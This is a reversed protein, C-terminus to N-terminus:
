KLGAIIARSAAEGSIEVNTSLRRGTEITNTSLDDYLKKYQEKVDKRQGTANKTIELKLGDAIYQYGGLGANALQMMDNQYVRGAQKMQGLAYTIRRFADAGGGLASVANGVAVIGGEFKKTDPNKRLVEDLSFGFARMRLASEQLEAFRFPTVNAFERITSVMGEAAASATSYGMRIYDIRGSVDAALVQQQTLGEGAAFLQQAQNRFLTTFGVTSQELLSNFGIIGGKLHGFIQGIESAIGQLVQYGAAMGLVNKIQGAIADQQRAM